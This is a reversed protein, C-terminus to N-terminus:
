CSTHAAYRALIYPSTCAQRSSSDATGTSGGRQSVQSASWGQASGSWSSSDAGATALAQESCGARQELVGWLQQLGLARDPLSLLGQLEQDRQVASACWDTQHDPGSPLTICLSLHEPAITFGLLVYLFGSAPVSLQTWKTGMSQHDIKSGASGCLLQTVAESLQSLRPHRYKSAALM